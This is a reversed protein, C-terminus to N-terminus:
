VQGVKDLDLRIHCVVKLLDVNVQRAAVIRSM